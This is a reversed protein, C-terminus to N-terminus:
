AIKKEQENLLFMESQEMYAKLVNVFIKEVVPVVVGNGMLKSFQTDCIFDLKRVDEDKLGMLRGQELRTLSRITAKKYADFRANTKPTFRVVSDDSVDELFVYNNNNQGRSKTTLTFAVKAKCPNHVRVSYNRANTRNIKSEMDKVLYKEPVDQELIDKLFLTLEEKQPFEFDMDMEELICVIYVRERNQCCGYDKANLISYKVKYGRKILEKEFVKFDKQNRKGVMAKVNEFFIVKPKAELEDLLRFTHWIIASENGDVCKFGEKRGLLSFGQCPTTAIIVDYYRGIFSAKTMDVLNEKVEPNLVHYAERAYKDIECFTDVVVDVGIKEGANKIALDTMGVGSCLSAVCIKMTEKSNERMQYIVNKGKM